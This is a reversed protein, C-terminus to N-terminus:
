VAGSQEEETDKGETFKVQQPGDTESEPYKTQVGSEGKSDM